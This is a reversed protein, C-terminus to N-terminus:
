WMIIMKLLSIETMNRLYAADTLHLAALTKVVENM